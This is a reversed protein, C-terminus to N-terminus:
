HKSSAEIAARLHPRVEDSTYGAALLDSEAQLIRSTIREKIATDTTGTERAHTATIQIDPYFGVLVSLTQVFRVTFVECKPDSIVQEFDRILKAKHEHATIRQGVYALLEAYTLLYVPHITEDAFYGALLGATQARLSTILEIPFEPKPDNMLNKISECISPCVMMGHNRGYGALFRQSQIPLASECIQQGIRLHPLYIIPDLSVVRNSGYDLKELSLCNKLSDLTTLQNGQCYLERLNICAEIGELSVLNGRRGICFRKDLPVSGGSHCYLKQLNICAELGRLNVLQNAGCNLVRLSPGLGTGELTTLMNYFCDLEEISHADIGKLSELKNNSCALLRLKTCPELGALTVLQNGWCRLERLDTITQLGDLNTLLNGTCRLSQLQPCVKLADLMVLQNNSCDFHVLDPFRELVSTILPGARWYIATIGPYSSHGYSEINASNITIEM